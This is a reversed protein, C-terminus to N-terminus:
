LTREEQLHRHTKHAGSRVRDVDAGGPHQETAKEETEGVRKHCGPEKLLEGEQFTCFCTESSM